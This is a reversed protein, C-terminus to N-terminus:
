TVWSCIENLYNEWLTHEREPSLEFPKSYELGRPQRETKSFLGTHVLSVSGQSSRRSPVDLQATWLQRNRLTKHLAEYASGPLFVDNTFDAPDSFVNHDFLPSPIHQYSSNVSSHFQTSALGELWSLDDIVYEPSSNYPNSSDDRSGPLTNYDCQTAPPHSYQLSAAQLGLDHGHIENGIYGTPRNQSDKQPLHSSTDSSHSPSLSQSPNPSPIENTLLPPTSDSVNETTAVPLPEASTSSTPLLPPEHVPGQKSFVHAHRNPTAKSGSVKPPANLIRFRTRFKTKSAAVGRSMSPHDSELVKINSERFSGFKRWQCDDGRTRCGTCTPKVEDCKRRRRSCNVCGTRARKKREMGLSPLTSDQSELPIPTEPNRRGDDHDTGSSNRTTNPMERRLFSDNM